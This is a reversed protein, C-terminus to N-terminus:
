AGVSARTEGLFPRGAKPDFRESEIRRAVSPFRTHETEEGLGRWPNLGGARRIPGRLGNQATLSSRIIRAEASM